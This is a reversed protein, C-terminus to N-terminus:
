LKMACSCIDLIFSLIIVGALVALCLSFSFIQQRFRLLSSRTHFTTEGYIFLLLSLTACLPSRLRGMVCVCVCVIGIVLFVYFGPSCALDLWGFRGVVFMLVYFHILFTTNSNGGLYLSDCLFYCIHVTM